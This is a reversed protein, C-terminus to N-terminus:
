DDDDDRKSQGKGKGKTAPETLGHARLWNMRGPHNAPKRALGPPLDAITFRTKEGTVKGKPAKAATYKKGDSAYRRLAKALDPPLKSLDVQVIDGRQDKGKGKKGKGKDGDEDDANAAAAMLAVAVVACALLLKRPSLITPTM